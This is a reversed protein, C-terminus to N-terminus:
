ISPFVMGDKGSAKKSVMDPNVVVPEDTRSLMSKKGCAVKNQRESVWHSPPKPIMISKIAMNGLRPISPLSKYTASIVPGVCLLVEKVKVEEARCIHSM